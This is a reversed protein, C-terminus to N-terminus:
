GEELGAIGIKVQSIIGEKHEYTLTGQTRTIIEELVEANNVKLFVQRKIGDIQIMRVETEPIALKEFIWDHIDLASIRPSDREFSCVLTNKRECM